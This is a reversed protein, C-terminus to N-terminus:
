LKWNFPTTQIHPKPPSFNAFKRTQIHKYVVVSCVPFSSFTYHTFTWFYIWLQCNIQRCKSSVPVLTQQCLVPNHKGCKELTDCVFIYRWQTRYANTIYRKNENTHREEKSSLLYLSRSLKYLAGTSAFLEGTESYSVTFKRGVSTCFV